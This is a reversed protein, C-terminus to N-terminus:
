FHTSIPRHMGRLKILNHGEIGFHEGPGYLATARAYKIYIHFDRNNENCYPYAPVNLRPIRNLSEIISNLQNNYNKITQAAGAASTKSFKRDSLVYKKFFNAAASKLADAITKTSVFTQEVQAQNTTDKFKEVM